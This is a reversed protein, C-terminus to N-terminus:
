VETLSEFRLEFLEREAGLAKVLEKSPINRVTTGIDKIKKTMENRRIKKVEVLTGQNPVIRNSM